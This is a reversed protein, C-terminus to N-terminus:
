LLTIASLAVITANTCLGGVFGSKIVIGNVFCGFLAHGLKEAVNDIFNPVVVEFISVGEVCLDRGDVDHGEKVGVTSPKMGEVHDQQMSVHCLVVHLCIADGLENDHHLIGLFLNLPGAHRNGFDFKDHHCQHSDKSGLVEWMLNIIPFAEQGQGTRPWSPLHCEAKGVQLVLALELSQPTAFGKATGV